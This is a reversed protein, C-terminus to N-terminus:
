RRRGLRCRAWRGRVVDYRTANPLADWFFLDQRSPRPSKADRCSRHDAHRRVLREPCTDNISCRQRRRVSTGDPQGPCTNSACANPLRVNSVAVDDLYLRRLKRRFGLHIAVPIPDHRERESRRHSPVSPRLRQRDLQTTFDSCSTGGGAPGTFVPKSNPFGCANGSRRAGCGLPEWDGTADSPDCGDALSSSPGPADTWVGGNVSYEV